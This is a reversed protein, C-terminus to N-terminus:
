FEQAPVLLNGPSKVKSTSPVPDPRILTPLRNGSCSQAGRAKAQPAKEIALGFNTVVVALSKLM